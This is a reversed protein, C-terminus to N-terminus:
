EDIGLMRRVVQRRYQGLELHDGSIVGGGSHARMDTLRMDYLLDEIETTLRQDDRHDLAAFLGFHKDARHAIRWVANATNAPRRM